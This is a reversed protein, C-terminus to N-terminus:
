GQFHFHFRAFRYPLTWHFLFVYLKTCGAYLFIAPFVPPGQSVVSYSCFPSGPIDVLTAGPKSGCGVAM